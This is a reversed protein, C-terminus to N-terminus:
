VRLIKSLGTEDENRDTIEGRKGLKGNEWRKKGAPFPATVNSGRRTFNFKLVVPFEARLSRPIGRPLPTRSSPYYLGGTHTQRKFNGTSSSTRGNSHKKKAFFRDLLCRTWLLINRPVFSLWPFARTSFYYVVAVFFFFYLFFYFLFLFVSSFNRSLFINWLLVFM